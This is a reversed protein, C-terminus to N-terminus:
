VSRGQVHTPERHALIIQPITFGNGPVQAISSISDTEHACAASSHPHLSSPHGGLVTFNDLSPPAMVLTRYSLNLINRTPLIDM